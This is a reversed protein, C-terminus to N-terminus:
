LIGLNSLTQIIDGSQFKGMPFVFRNLARFGMPRGAFAGVSTTARIFAVKAPEVTDDLWEKFRSMAEALMPGHDYDLTVTQGSFAFSIDVEALYQANLGYWAAAMLVFTKFSTGAIFSIDWNTLPHRTNILDMGRNLYEVIDSDEYAQVKGQQKQYKDILQRLQVSMNLIAGTVAQILQFQNEQAATLDQRIDWLAIYQCNGVVSGAPITYTYIFSDGNPTEAIQGNALTVLDVGGPGIPVYVNSSTNGSVLRLSLAGDNDLDIRSTRRLMLRVENGSLVLTTQSRDETATIKNDTVDFQHTFEAQENVNTVISIRFAYRQNPNSLLADQPVTWSVSYEGPAGDQMLVGTQIAVGNLDLIEYSPYLLPNKPILPTLKSGDTYFGVRFKQTTGRALIRPIRDQADVFAM